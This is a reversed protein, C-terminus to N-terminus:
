VADRPALKEVTSFLEWKAKLNEVIAEIVLNSDKVGEELKSTVKIRKLIDASYSEARAKTRM